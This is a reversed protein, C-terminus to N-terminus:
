AKKEETKRPKFSAHVHDFHDRPGTYKRWGRSDLSNIRGRWIVYSTGWKAKNNILDAALADGRKKGANVGETDRGNVMFDLALGKPHDSNSVSGTASYGWIVRIRYKPGLEYAAKKVHPKVNGITYKPTTIPDFMEGVKEAADGAADGLNAGAEGESAGTILPISLGEGRQELVTKLADYDGSVLALLAASLDEGVNMARGAQVRQLLLGAVLILVWGLTQM